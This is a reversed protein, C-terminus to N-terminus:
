QQGPYGYPFGYREGGEGYGAFFVLRHAAVAGLCQQRGCLTTGTLIGNPKGPLPCQWAQVMGQMWHRPPQTDADTVLLCDACPQQQQSARVLHAVVNAKARAAGMNEQIDVVQVQGYGPQM